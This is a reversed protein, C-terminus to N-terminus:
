GKGKSIDDLFKVIGCLSDVVLMLKDIGNSVDLLSANIEIQIACINCENSITHSVTNNSACFVKDIEIKNIGFNNFICIIKQIMLFDNFINKGHNTGIEIMHKRESSMIHLDLLYKINNKNVCNALADKYINRKDFNADDSMNKTKYAVYCNLRDHLMHSIVGTMYEGRKINGRRTQTVSHPSSVMIPINGEKIRYSHSGGFDEKVFHVELEKIEAISFNKM